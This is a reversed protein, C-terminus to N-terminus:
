NPDVHSWYKRYFPLFDRIQKTPYAGANLYKHMGAKNFIIKKIRPEYYGLEVLSKGDRRSLNEMLVIKFFAKKKRGVRKLRIKLM